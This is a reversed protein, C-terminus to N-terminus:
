IMTRLTFFSFDDDIKEFNFEIPRSAKRALELLGLGAGRQKTDRELKRKEKYSATLEEKSMNQLETLKAGLTEAEINRIKNGGMVFYSGDTQGVAIIGFMLEEPSQVHEPVKEASYRIINQSQEVLMSFVKLIKPMGAEALKMKQKLIDGIDVMLEQSIPGSFSLFIGDSSLNQKLKSLNYM